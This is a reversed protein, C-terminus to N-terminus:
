GCIACGRITCAGASCGRSSCGRACCGNRNVKPGNLPCNRDAKPGSVGASSSGHGNSFTSVMSDVAVAVVVAVAVAVGGTGWGETSMRFLRKTTSSKFIALSGEGEATM